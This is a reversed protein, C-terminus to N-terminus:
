NSKIVGRSSGKYVGTSTGKKLGILIPPTQYYWIFENSESNENITNEPIKISNYSSGTVSDNNTITVIAQKTTTRFIRIDNGSVHQSITNGDNSMSLGGGIRFLRGMQLIPKEIWSQSDTDYKHITTFNSQFIGKGWTILTYGDASLSIRAAYNNSGPRIPIHRRHRYAYRQPHLRPHLQYPTGLLDWTETEENYQYSEVTNAHAVGQEFGNNGYRLARSFAIITGDYNISCGRGIQSFGHDGQFDIGVQKWYYTSSSWSVPSVDASIYQNTPFIIPLNLGDKNLSNSTNGSNYEEETITGYKFVRVLGAQILPKTGNGMNYRAGANILTNSLIISNGDGSLECGWEGPANTGIMTGINNWTTGSDYQLIITGKTGLGIGRPRRLGMALREGDDSLSIIGDYQVHINSNVNNGYALSFDIFRDIGGTNFTFGSIDGILTWDDTEYKYVKVHEGDTYAIVSGDYNITLAGGINAAHGRSYTNQFESYFTSGIQNWSSDNTDYSFVKWEAMLTDYSTIFSNGDGSLVVGANSGKANGMNRSLDYAWTDEVFESFGIEGSSSKSISTITASGSIEIDDITLNTLDESSTIVLEVTDNVISDGSTFLSTSIDISM